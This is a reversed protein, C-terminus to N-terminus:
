VQKMDAERQKRAQEEKDKQQQAQVQQMQMNMQQQQMDAEADQQEAQQQLIPDENNEEEMQEIDDDSLRLVKKRVFNRSYYVGIMDEMNKVTNVRNTIIESEKLETFYGDQVYDFKVKSMIETLEEQAVIGKLVLQKGLAEKFLVSFKMRLRDVFKSFRLEERTIEASRGLSFGQESNLRTVPVHLSQYLRKQFYLVDDMQGLNAGAPLTTIETGKGGERRPIWFDETMTMFKRDDRVEGTTADYVLRNKHRQMMDALYQEAKMKPLNGVDIYYVRREPARTLRYIVSADELMRLQNMPKIAKHLYSLVYSNNEDLLGSSVLVISDKAIRLGNTSSTVEKSQFGKDNYMYYENQVTITKKDKKIERIKRIKRPDIYRLEKIGDQPSNTDIIVHYYLRGDVYWRRIIDFGSSSFDLLKKVEDFEDTIKDKLSKSFELDDLNINVQEQNSDYSIMEGVIEEVATEIEPQLSLQRYRTILEAETRATGELDVYTGVVGGGSVIVAGDDNTPPVFSPQTVAVVQPLEEEKRKITFGFLEM